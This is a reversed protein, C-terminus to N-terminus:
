AKALLALQALSDELNHSEAADQRLFANILPLAEIAKDIEPSSGRAYAGILIMDEM